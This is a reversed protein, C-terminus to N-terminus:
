PRELVGQKQAMSRLGLILPLDAGSKEVVPADFMILRPKGTSEGDPGALPVAIPIQM